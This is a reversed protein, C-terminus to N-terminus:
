AAFAAQVNTQLAAVSDIVDPSLKERQEDVLDTLRQRVFGSLARGLHRRVERQEFVPNVLAYCWFHLLGYWVFCAELFSRLPLLNGTWPSKAVPTQNYILEPPGWPQMVQQMYLLGHIGEHVIADAVAEVTVVSSQVNTIFSRGVFQGNSGSASKGQNAPDSQIVLVKNFRAIFQGTEHHAHAVGIVAQRVKGFAVDLEPPACCDRPRLTEFDAGSLDISRARPSGFDMPMMGPEQPWNIRSGDPLFASDGLATWTEESFEIVQGALALEARLSAEFFRASEAADDVRWLLRRSTEPAGLFRCFARESAKSSLESLHADARKNWKERLMLMYASHVTDFDAPGCSWSLADPMRQILM